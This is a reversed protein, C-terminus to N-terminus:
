VGAGAPHRALFALVQERVADISLPDTAVYLHCHQRAHALRRQQEDMDAPQWDMWRRQQAVPYSVDLFVLIDPQGVVQWMRPAYSHDQAIHRANYGLSLLAQVLTSKGACCPGVVGIVPSHSEAAM